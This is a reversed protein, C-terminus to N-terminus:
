MNCAVDRMAHLMVGQLVPTRMHACTGGPVTTLALPAASPAGGKASTTCAPSWAKSMVPPRPPRPLAENLDPNLLHAGEGGMNVFGAGM